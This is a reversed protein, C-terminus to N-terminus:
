FFHGFAFVTFYWVHLMHATNLFGRGNWEVPTHYDESYQTTFSGTINM